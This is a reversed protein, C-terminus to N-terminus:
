ASLEDVMRQADAEKQLADDYYIKETATRKSAEVLAAINSESPDKKVKDNAGKEAKVAAEYGEKSKNADEAAKTLSEKALELQAEKEKQAAEAARQEAEAKEEETFEKKAGVKTIARHKLLREIEERSLETVEEGAHFEKGDKRISHNAIYM